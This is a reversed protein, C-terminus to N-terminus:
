AYTHNMVDSYVTKVKGNQDKYTLFAKASATGTQASIGYSLIFQTSGETSNAYAAKVVGSNDASGKKGVNALTLDADSLNKGYVFGSKLYTCGDVMARTAVFEVKYSGAVQNASVAAVVPAQTTASAAKVTVDSAVYFTYSDGYAVIKGDIAWATAGAKSVTVQTGYPVDALTGQASNSGYAVTADADTTVTYTAAADKEYQAYVTMSSTAAKITAEDASWGTFTYGTYTPAQPIKVDAGSAVSQSSIVNNFMDVFTFQVPKASEAFVPTYTIDAIAVTTYTADTSVIKNGTQWGVFTCNENPTAVLTYTGNEAFKKSGGATVDQGALTVSGNEVANVTVTVGALAPATEKTYSYGCDKCTYTTIEPQDLTAEQTVKATFDCAKTDKHSADNACVRTHTASAEATAADHSWQGWAHGTAPIVVNNESIVYGCDSCSTTVTKSGDKDCTADVINSELTQPNHPTTTLKATFTTDASITATTPDTDWAYSYHGAADPAKTPLAPVSAPSKGEEVTETGLSAGDETVYNVTYSKTEPTSTGGIKLTGMAPTTGEYETMGTVTYMRDPDVSGMHLNCLGPDNAPWDNVGFKLLDDSIVTGEAVQFGVTGLYLGQLKVGLGDDGGLPGDTEFTYDDGVYVVSGTEPLHPTAISLAYYTDNFKSAADILYANGDADSVNSFSPVMMGSDGATFGKATRKGMTLADDWGFSLTCDGFQGGYNKLIFSAAVYYKGSRIAAAPFDTSNATKGTLDVKSLDAYTDNNASNEWEADGNTIFSKNLGTYATWVIDVEPAIDAATVYDEKAVVDGPEYSNAALASIPAMSVVMLGAMVGSLLKKASKRM